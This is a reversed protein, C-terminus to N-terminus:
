SRWASGGAGRSSTSRACAGRGPVRHAHRLPRAPERGGRAIGQAGSDWARWAVRSLRNGLASPAATFQRHRGLRDSRANRAGGPARGPASVGRRACPERRVPDTRCPCAPARRRQGAAHRPAPAGARHEDPPQPPRQAPLLRGRGATRRQLGSQRSASARPGPSSRTASRTAGILIRSWSSATVAETGTTGRARHPM